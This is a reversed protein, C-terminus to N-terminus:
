VLMGVQRETEAFGLQGYIWKAAGLSELAYQAAYYTLSRCIGQRRYAPHIVVEQFFGNGAVDVFGGFNGVHEDEIFAAFWRGKGADVLARYGNMQGTLRAQTGQRQEPTADPRAHTATAGEIVAQWDNDSDVVHIDLGSNHYPAADLFPQAVGMDGEPSDWGFAQHTIDRIDGFEAVFLERWRVFDQATPGCPFFLHTGWCYGPNEPTRILLYDGRDTIRGADADLMLDTSWGVSGINMTSFYRGNAYRNM